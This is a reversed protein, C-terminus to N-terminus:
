QSNLRWVKVHCTLYSLCYVCVASDLQMLYITHAQTRLRTKDHRTCNLSLLTKQLSSYMAIDEITAHCNGVIADRREGYTGLAISKLTRFIILLCKWNDGFWTLFVRLLTFVVLCSVLKTASVIRWDYDKHKKWRVNEAPFFVKKNLM